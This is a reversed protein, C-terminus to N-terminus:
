VGKGWLWRALEVMAALLPPGGFAVAVAMKVLRRDNELCSIRETLHELKEEVANKHTTIRTNIAEIDVKTAMNLSIQRVLDFLDRTQQRREEGSAVLAGIDRSLSAFDVDGM